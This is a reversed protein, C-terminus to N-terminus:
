PHELWQVESIGVHGPWASGPIRELISIEVSRLSLPKDLLQVTFGQLRDECCDTRNWIVIREIPCAEGLDVEWWVDREAQTDTVSGQPYAGGTNGDIACGPTGASAESSQKAEV